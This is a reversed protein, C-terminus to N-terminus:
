RCVGRRRAIGLALLARGVLAVGSPEPVESAAPVTLVGSIGYLHNLNTQAGPGVATWLRTTDTHRGRLATTTVTGGLPLLTTGDRQTGTMIDHMLPTDGRGNVLEGKENLATAKNVNGPAHLNNPNAAILVGKQNYWPGAGIRDKANVAPQGGAEQASLYAAWQRTGAGVAQALTQCHADAGALGGLNGGDGKGVSTIFFGMPPPAAPAAPAAAGGAAGGAAPAPTQQAFAIGTNLLTMSVVLVSSVLKNM